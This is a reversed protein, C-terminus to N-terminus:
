QSWWEPNNRAFQLINGEQRVAERLCLERVFGSMSVKRIRCANTHQLLMELVHLDDDSLLVNIRNTRNQKM